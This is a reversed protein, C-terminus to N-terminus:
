GAAAVVGSEVPPRRRARAPYRASTEGRGVTTRDQRHHRLPRRLGDAALCTPQSPCPITDRGGDGFAADAQTLMEEIASRPVGFSDGLRVAKGVFGAAIDIAQGLRAESQKAYRWAMWAGGVALAALLVMAAALGQYIRVRRRAAILERRRLDNFSVGLLGAILKLKANDKGDGEVRLDAAVPEAFEETLVGDPRTRFRLAPPFCERDPSSANPEGDIIVALIRDGRGLRKVERIEQDVWLSKAAAPSCVVILGASDRLAARISASLDASSALEDRDRFVPFIQKPIPGDRGPQGVLPKPVRYREIAKHLWEARKRDRHSYSMFARYKFSTATVVSGDM